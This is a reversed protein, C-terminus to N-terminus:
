LERRLDDEDRRDPRENRYRQDRRHHQLLRSRGPGVQSTPRSWSWRWGAVIVLVLVWQYALAAYLGAAIGVALLAALYKREMNVVLVAQLSIDETVGRQVEPRREQM